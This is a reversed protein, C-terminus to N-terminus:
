KIIIRGRFIKEGIIEILYIGQKLGERKLEYNESTIKSITRVRKGSIDTIYISYEDNEPNPFEIFTKTTFPSPHISLGEDSIIGKIGTENM